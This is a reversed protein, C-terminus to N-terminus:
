PNKVEKLWPIPQIKSEKTLDLDLSAEQIKKDGHKILGKYAITNSLSAIHDNM